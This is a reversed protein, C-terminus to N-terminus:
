AREAMEKLQGLLKKWAGTMRTEVDADMMGHVRHGVRLLTTKGDDKPQLEFIFVMTVPLHTLGGHGSIRILKEPEMYVVHGFLMSTGDKFEAFWRGGPWLELTHRPQRAPDPDMVFWGSPNKLSDWVKKPPAGVPLEQILQIGYAKLPLEKLPNAM